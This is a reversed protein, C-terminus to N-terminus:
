LARAADIAADLDSGVWHIDDPAADTEDGVYWGGDLSANAARLWRYREADARAEDRERRLIQAEDAAAIMAERMATLNPFGAIEQTLREVEGLLARRDCEADLLNNGHKRKTAADRERIAALEEPTM